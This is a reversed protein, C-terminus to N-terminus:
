LGPETGRPPAVPQSADQLWPVAPAPNGPSQVCAVVSRFYEAAVRPHIRERYQLLRARCASREGASGVLEALARALDPVRGSRFLRGGGSARILESAGIGDSVVTPLAAQVAENIRVGWPECLGPAVFLDAAQKLADLEPGPLVGTFVVAEGLGLAAAQQRLAPERPGYGTIHCVFPLGQDRLHGLAPLLLHHGKNPELYGTCLLRVPGGSPPPTPVAETPPPETFYGYPFVRAASWGLRRLDALARPAAGSLCLAFLSRRCLPRTRCPLVTRWYLEKLWYRLGTLANFRSETMAAFRCGSDAVIQAAYGLRDDAYLTNFVHLASPTDAALARVQEQWGEEPLVSVQARGYDPMTWGLRQRRASLPRVCVVRVDLDGPAALERVVGSTAQCPMIWWFVLQM